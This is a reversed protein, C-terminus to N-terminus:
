VRERCSARGIEGAGLAKEWLHAAAPSRADLIQLIEAALIHRLLHGLRTRGILGVAMSLSRVEGAVGFYPSNVLRLVRATAAPDAALLEGVRENPSDPDDSAEIAARVVPLLAPLDALKQIARRVPGPDTAFWGAGTAKSIGM